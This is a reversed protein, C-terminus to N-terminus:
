LMKNEKQNWDNIFQMMGQTTLPHVFVRKLLLPPLTIADAGVLLAEHLHEVSRVSAVLLQTTFDYQELMCKIEKILYIAPIGSDELRGIFPSIYAVGWKAMLWAQELSFILTINLAIGEDVLQKIVSFYPPHCPIKVLVNKGLKKIAHAQQYIAEPDTETVEVSIIGKPFLTIIKDIIEDSNGSEHSVHTPNTTVGDIHFHEIASVIEAISATDIFLKM